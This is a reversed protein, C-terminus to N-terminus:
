KTEHWNKAYGGDVKLKVNLKLATEMIEKIAPFVKEIEDDPVQFLLEDHIQLVLKTQYNHDQLFRDVKIMALKILDAATGQIPANIAARKAFERTQYNGDHLERLYRRRGLLTSVFGDKEADEVIKQFYQRIEPYASYFTNIIVKAESPAIDLQEALGWDSIGYVVGFNVTKAKRRQASTVAGEIHFIRRATETHIDQDNNFVEILNQCNSLSALVRLEIQSYDFSLINMKPDDYYFAKRILKGEEDRISINQLNPESSSLRGTTTLAQNFIAHIKGDECIHVVLGDIYTSILKSYKRHELIKDVIPHRGSLGKLADVSTSGKKNGPLGLKEYLIVGVQKPSAINFKEGALEYIENNLALLKIRYEFGIEELTKRNLPFGEIEMKALVDALPIEIDRFLDLSFINKMEEVAKPYVALSQYAMQAAKHRNGEDLLSVGTDEAAVIDIGFFGFVADPSNSLSSDLIYSALLVDFYLGQIDIGYTHLACKIAKFDFCYKRIDPSHLMALLDTDKKADEITIYYNHTGNYLSIGFVSARHYNANEMDLAIGIKNGLVVNHTSTITESEANANFSSNIKYKPTLYRMFARLEYKQCFDNIENFDYGRYFTDEINFPLDIDRRILALHRSLRGLEQNEAIKQGLKGSLNAANAIVNDLTGYEQILKTATKDGVGPIGPINDSADGCLGKYDPIQSPKLGYEVMLAAENMVAIDSLGKKLINIKVNDSILQLFDRDSTFIAVDYNLKSAVEAATGAVDDGEFGELEFTFVGLAKLFDRAIPMQVILDEPTPKRNAKYSEMETHRFTKKGTDFAVLIHEDGDLASIIKSMMNSFAFIANTPIGEKTRMITQGPYATAFYARFLLSNGDIIIMREM